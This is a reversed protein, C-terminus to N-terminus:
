EKPPSNNFAWSPVHRRPEATQVAGAEDRVPQPLIGGSRRWGGRLALLYLVLSTSDRPAQLGADPVSAARNHDHRDQHPDPAWQAGHLTANGDDSAADVIAPRAPAASTETRAEAGLLIKCIGPATRGPSLQRLGIQIAVRGSPRWDLVGVPVAIEHGPACSGTSHAKRRISGYRWADGVM